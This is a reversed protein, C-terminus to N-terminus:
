LNMMHVTLVEQNWYLPQWFPLLFYNDIAASYQLVILRLCESLNLYNEFPEFCFELFPGM